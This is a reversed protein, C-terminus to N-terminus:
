RTQAPTYRLEPFDNLARESQRLAWVPGGLLVEGQRYLAAVGPHKDDTTRFVNHAEDQKDYTFKQTVQMIGVIQTGKDSQEVLAVESGERLTAAFASDVSLTIPLTWPLGDPLHMERVVSQYEAQEMFGTLPSMAGNAIMELDALNQESLVVQPLDSARETAAKLADGVLTRNVLMGGHPPIQVIPKTTERVAETM